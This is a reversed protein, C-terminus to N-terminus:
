FLVVHVRVVDGGGTAGDLTFAASPVIARSERLGTNPPPLAEVELCALFPTRRGGDVVVAFEGTAGGRTRTPLHVAGPCDPDGEASTQPSGVRVTVWTDPVIYGWRDTVVGEVRVGVHAAGAGEPPLPAVPKPALVGCAGALLAVGAVIALRTM